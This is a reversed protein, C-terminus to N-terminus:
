SHFPICSSTETGSSVLTFHKVEEPWEGNGEPAIAEGATVRSVRPRQIVREPRCPLIRGSGQPKPSAGPEITSSQLEPAFTSAWGRTSTNPVTVTRASAEKRTSVGTAACQLREMRSRPADGALAQHHLDKKRQHAIHGCRWAARRDIRPRGHSRALWAHCRRSRLSVRLASSKSLRGQVVPFPVDLRSAVKAAGDSLVTSRM